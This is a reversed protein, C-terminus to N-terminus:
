DAEATAGMNNEAPEDKREMVPPLIIVGGIEEEKDIVHEVKERWKDPQKNSLYYKIATTDPQIYVQDKVYVIEDYDCIKKGTEPDYDARRIKMPKIVEQIFGTAKKYLANEVHTDAKIRSERLSDCIDCSIKIWRYLTARNIGMNEAIQQMSLGNRAWQRILELNEEKEWYHYDVKKSAAADVAVSQTVEQERKSEKGPSTKRKRGKSVAKKADKVTADSKKAKTPKDGDKIQRHRIAKVDQKQENNKGRAM